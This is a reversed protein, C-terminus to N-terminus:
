MDVTVTRAFTVQKRGCPSVRHAVNGTGAGVDAVRDGPQLDLYKVALEALPEHAHHYLDDYQEAIKDYHAPVYSSTNTLTLPPYDGIRWQKNTICEGQCM